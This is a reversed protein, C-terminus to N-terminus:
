KHAALAYPSASDKTWQEAKERAQEVWKQSEKLLTDNKDVNSYTVTIDEIWFGEIKRVWIAEKFQSEGVTFRVLLLGIQQNEALNKDAIVISSSVESQHLRVLGRMGFTMVGEMEAYRAHALEEPTAYTVRYKTWLPTFHDRVSILLSLSALILALISLITKMPIEPLTPTSSSQYSLKTFRM